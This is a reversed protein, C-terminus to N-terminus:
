RGGGDGVAARYAAFDEWIREVTDQPLDFEYPKDPKEVSAVSVHIKPWRQGEPRFVDHTCQFIGTRAMDEAEYDAKSTSESFEMPQM